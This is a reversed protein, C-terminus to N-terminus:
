EGLTLSAVACDAAVAYAREAITYWQNQGRDFTQVPDPVNVESRWVHVQGSIFITGEPYGGGVSWITGYPTRYLNGDRVWQEEAAALAAVGPSAHIFGIRGYAATGYLWQELAAVAGAVLPQNPLVTDQADLVAAMASEVEFQEGNELNQRARREARAANTGVSGCQSSGYVVFPEGDVFAPIADFVKESPSEEAPSDDPCDIPWSHAVGCTVPEYRVGAGFQNGELPLFSGVARFLGYRLPRPMPAEVVDPPALPM